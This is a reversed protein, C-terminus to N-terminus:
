DLSIRFDGNEDTKASRLIDDNLGFPGPDSDYVEVTYGEPVTTRERIRGTILYKGAM